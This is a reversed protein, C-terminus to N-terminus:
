GARGGPDISHDPTYKRSSKTISKSIVRVPLIDAVPITVCDNEFGLQVKKTM